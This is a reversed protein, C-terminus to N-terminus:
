NIKIKEFLVSCFFYSAIKTMTSDEYYANIVVWCRGVCSFIKIRKHLSKRRHPPKNFIFFAHGKIQILESCRLM